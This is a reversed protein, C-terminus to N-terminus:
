TRYDANITVYERSLDTTWFNSSADGVGLGLTVTYEPKELVKRLSDDQGGIPAGDRAVEIDDFKLYLREQDLAAGSYGAAAFIRGWNPLNGNIATKVLLSESVSRAALRADEDSTAGEVRLQVVKTVGEGDRVIALALELCVQKLATEFLELTEGSEVRVGSAGTAALIATDNTSTDGDITVCNFSMDSAERLLKALLESSVAADTTVYALMTAMNPAIMGAGKSMGGIRVTGEPLEVLVAYEKPRTDTTMIAEASATGGGKSLGAVLEGFKAELLEVPLNAGILGTSSMVVEDSKSGLVGAIGDCLHYADSLGTQGTCANANGSNVLIARLPGKGVRERCLVVPAACVLNRTYVGAAEAPPDFAILTIDPNGSEKIGATAASARVGEAACVGGEIVQINIKESM